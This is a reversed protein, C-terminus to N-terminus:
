TTYDVTLGKVQGQKIINIYKGAVINYLNAPDLLCTCLPHKHTYLVHRLKCTQRTAKHRSYLLLIQSRFYLIGTDSNYAYEHIIHM